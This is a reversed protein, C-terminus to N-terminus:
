LGGQMVFDIRGREAANPDNNVQVIELRGVDIRGDRLEARSTTGLRRFVNPKGGSDDMDIWAVGPVKMARAVVASLYLPQGFTFNDPNFFGRGAATGDPSAATSFVELLALKVDSRRYGSKVCVTLVIELPVFRPGDIELDYGAIRFPELFTRMEQEFAVDVALGGVRDITIFTTYWSGTWRRTAAARQVEPHREAVEAWDAMTVAREQTRFAQPAYLRVAETAEPDIGGVGPLPNRAQVSSLGPVDTVLRVLTDAGVNGATGSGVRYAAVYPEDGTPARGLTGDGFRITARREDDMEVVFDPTFRESGLLDAQPHWILGEGSVVVSPMARRATEADLEIVASAPQTLAVDQDYAAAFTLDTRALRPRYRRGSPAVPPILPEAAFTCGHDALAVNGRAVSVVGSAVEWLCLSFRLADAAFWEIDVVAEGTLLDTSAVPKSALRVAQRHARDADGAVGTAPDRIEELILVDGAALALSSANGKLTAHTSGKPLCCRPDGWTHFRIEDRFQNLTIPHMTEFVAVGPPIVTNGTQARAAADEDEQSRVVTGKDLLAGHAAAGATFAIWARANAGEHIAYDLLRAHRRVSARRRATGLYAETATADQFYSLQDGTYAFLEVLTVGLDAANRETWDPISVSLRDLMLRRFSEYDKALYDIRPTEASPEGCAVTQRCDLDSACNAKFSFDLSSLLPDFGPLPGHPPAASVVSLYYTSFDGYKDTRVVLVADREAAPISKVYDRTVGSLASGALADTASSAWQVAIGTIREGGDIRVNAATIGAVSRLCHVVLTRQAPTGPAVDVFDVANLTTEDRVRTKRQEDPCYLQGVFGAAPTTM